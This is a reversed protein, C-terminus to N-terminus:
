TAVALDLLLALACGVGVALLLSGTRYVIGAIAFVSGAIFLTVLTSDGQATAWTEVAVMAGLVAPALFIMAERATAPLRDAPIVAIFLIRLVWCCVGLGLMAVLATM